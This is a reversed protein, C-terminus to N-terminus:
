HCVLPDGAHVCGLELTCDIDRQRRGEPQVKVGFLRDDDMVRIADRYPQQWAIDQDPNPRHRISLIELQLDIYRALERRDAAWGTFEIRPDCRVDMHSFSEDEREPRVVFEQGVRDHWWALVCLPKQLHMGAKALDGDICWWKGILNAASLSEESASCQRWIQAIGGTSQQREGEIM